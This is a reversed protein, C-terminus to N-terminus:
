ARGEVVLARVHRPDRVRLALVGVAVAGGLVTALFVTTFGAADALLGGV